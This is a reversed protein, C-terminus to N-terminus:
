PLTSRKKGVAQGLPQEPPSVFIFEVKAPLNETWGCIVNAGM